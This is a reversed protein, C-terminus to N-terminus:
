TRLTDSFRGYRMAMGVAGPKKYRVVSLCSACALLAEEEIGEAYLQSRSLEEITGDSLRVFKLRSHLDKGCFVCQSHDLERLRRFARDIAMQQEARRESKV